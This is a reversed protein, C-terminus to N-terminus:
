LIESYGRTWIVTRGRGMNEFRTLTVTVVLCSMPLGIRQRGTDITPETTANVIIDSNRKVDAADAISSRIGVVVVEELVADKEQAFTLSAFSRYRLDPM